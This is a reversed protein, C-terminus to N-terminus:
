GPEVRDGGRLKVLRFARRAPAPPQVGDDAPIVEFSHEDTTMALLDAAVPHVDLSGDGAPTSGEIEVGGDPRFRYTIHLDGDAAADLLVACAEDIALRLDEIQELDFGADTAVGTATLRALRLFRTHAPLQLRVVGDIGETADNGDVGGSETM